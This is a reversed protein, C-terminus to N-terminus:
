SSACTKPNVYCGGYPSNHRCADRAGNIAVQKSYSAWYWAGRSPQSANESSKTLPLTDHSFCRWYIRPPFCVIPCEQDKNFPICAHEVVSRADMETEGYQNWVAGKQDNAICHWLPGAFCNISFGSLLAILISRKLM